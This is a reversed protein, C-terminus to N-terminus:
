LIMCNRLICEPSFLCATDDAIAYKHATFKLPTSSKESHNKKGSFFMFEQATKNAVNTIMRSQKQSLTPGAFLFLCSTDQISSQNLMLM